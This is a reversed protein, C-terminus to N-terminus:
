NKSYPIKLKNESPCKKEEKSRIEKRLDRFAQVFSLRLLLFEVCPLSLTMVVSADLEGKESTM